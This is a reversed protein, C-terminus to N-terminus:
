EKQERSSKLSIIGTLINAGLQFTMLVSGALLFFQPIYIPTRSPHLSRSDSTVSAYFVEQIYWSFYILFMFAIGLCILNLYAQGRPSLRSLLLKIRIHGETKLTYALGLFVLCALFYAAYEDAILTTVKFVTRLIIELLILLFIALILVSAAVGGAHSLKDIGTVIKNM